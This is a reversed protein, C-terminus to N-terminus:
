EQAVTRSLEERLSAPAFKSTPPGTYGAHNKKDGFNNWPVTSGRLGGSSLHDVYGNMSGPVDHPDLRWTETDSTRTLRYVGCPCAPTVDQLALQAAAKSLGICGAAHTVAVIATRPRYPFRRNIAKIAKACRDHFESRPEPITPVFLSDYTLDLRPFYHIREEIPPLSKHWEGNKGDWEFIASEPLIPHLNMGEIKAFGNLAENSTQLCRLFPSSLWTIDRSSLGEESFVRDLFAGTERAQQHGLRSLPPDGVRATASKTWQHM